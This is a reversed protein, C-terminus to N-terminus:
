TDRLPATGPLDRPDIRTSGVAIFKVALNELERVNGPWDYAALAELEERGAVLNRRNLERAHKALFHELLSPIDEKRDRLPPLRLCAGKLRFYLETRFRGAEVDRDIGSSSSAVIRPSRASDPADLLALLYRQATPGLEQVGDLFLTGIQAAGNLGGAYRHLRERIETDETSACCIKELSDEFRLSLQHLRRAYVDKGCGSEGLILVPLNTRALGDLTANIVGISAACGPVFDLLTSTAAPSTHASM